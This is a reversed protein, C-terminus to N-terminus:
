NLILERKLKNLKNAVSANYQIDGVRLIFGGLIKEDIINEVEVEKGTLAKIKALAKAKLEDTLPIATIVQATEVGKLEDYLQNVRIAIDELLTLRKNIILADILNVTIANANKFIELLATRKISSKIVPSLLMAKLDENEAVTAAIQRMDDNVAEAMNQDKALNLAAKAYRISARTGAM